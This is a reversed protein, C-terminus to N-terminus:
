ILPLRCGVAFGEPAGKAAGLKEDVELLLVTISVHTM